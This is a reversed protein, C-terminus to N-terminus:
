FGTALGSNIVPVLLLCVKRRRYGVMGGSESQYAPKCVAIAEDTAATDFRSFTSLRRFDRFYGSIIGILSM